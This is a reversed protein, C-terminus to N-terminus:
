SQRVRFYAYDTDVRTLASTLSALVGRGNEPGIRAKAFFESLQLAVGSQTSRGWYNGGSIQAVRKVNLLSPTFRDSHNSPVTVFAYSFSKLNELHNMSKGVSVGIAPISRGHYIMDWLMPIQANDKWNTKCQIVAVATDGFRDRTVEELIATDALGSLMGSAEDFEPFSVAVLDSETNAQVTGYTVTLANRISVPVQSRASFVVGNTGILCLNLYWCVLAEWVSGGASLESQGRGATGTSRFIEALHTSLDIVARADVPQSLMTEIQPRWTPWVSLFSGRFLGSVAKERARDVLRSMGSIANFTTILGRCYRRVLM